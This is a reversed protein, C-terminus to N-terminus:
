ESVSLNLKRWEAERGSVPKGLDRIRPVKMWDELGFPCGCMDGSQYDDRGEIACAEDWLATEAKALAMWAPPSLKTPAGKAWGSAVGEVRIAKNAGESSCTTHTNVRIVTTAAM